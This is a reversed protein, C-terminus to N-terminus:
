ACAPPMCCRGRVLDCCRGGGRSLVEKGGPCCRGGESWTVVGGEGQVVGVGGSWTVVGGEGQVVGGEGRPGPRLM